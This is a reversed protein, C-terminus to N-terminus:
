KYKRGLYKPTLKRSSSISLREECGPPINRYFTHAALRQAKEFLRLRNNVGGVRSKIIEERFSRLLLTRILRPETNEEAVVGHLLPVEM